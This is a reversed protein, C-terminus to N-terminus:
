SWWVRVFALDASTAGADAITVFMDKTADMPSDDMLPDVGANRGDTARTTAGTGVVSFFVTTTSGSSVSFTVTETVAAVVYGEVRLLRRAGSPIRLTAVSGAALGRVAFLESRLDVDNTTDHGVATALATLQTDLLSGATSSASNILTPTYGAHTTGQAGRDARYHLVIRGATITSANPCSVTFTVDSSSSPIPVPIGSTSPGGITLDASPLSESTAGNSIATIPQFTSDSCTLTWTETGAAFVYFEVAYVECSNNTGPRRVAVTRLAEASANTIGDLLFTERSYTYRKDLNRQVDRAGAELNDNVREMDLNQLSVFRHTQMPVTM